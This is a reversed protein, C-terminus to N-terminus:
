TTTLVVAINGSYSGLPLKTSTFGPVQIEFVYWDTKPERDTHGSVLNFTREAITLQTTPDTVPISGDPLANNEGQSSRTNSVRYNMGAEEDLDSRLMYNFSEELSSESYFYMNISLSTGGTRYFITNPDLDWFIGFEVKESVVGYQESSFSLSTIEMPPANSSPNTYVAPDYFTITLPLSKAFEIYFNQSDQACLSAVAFILIQFICLLKRM